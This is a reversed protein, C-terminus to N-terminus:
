SEEAFAEDVCSVEVGDVSTERRALPGFQEVPM